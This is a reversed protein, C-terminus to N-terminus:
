RQHAKLLNQVKQAAQECELVSNEVQRLLKFSKSQGDLDLTAYENLYRCSNEMLQEAHIIPRHEVKDTGDSQILMIESTMQNQLRFAAEVRQQFEDLNQNDPSYRLSCGQILAFNVLLAVIFYRNSNALPLYGNIKNIRM